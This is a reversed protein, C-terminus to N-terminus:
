GGMIVLAETYKMRRAYEIATVTIEYQACECAPLDDFNVSPPVDLIPYTVDEARIEFTAMEAVLEGVRKIDSQTMAEMLRDAFQHIREERSLEPLYASSGPVANEFEARWASASRMGRKRIELYLAIVEDQSFHPAFHELWGSALHFDGYKRISRSLAYLVNERLQENCRYAEVIWESRINGTWVLRSPDELFEERTPTVGELRPVNIQVYEADKLPGVELPDVM